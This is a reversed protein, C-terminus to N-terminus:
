HVHKRSRSPAAAAQEAEYGLVAVIGVGLAAALGIRVWSQSKVRQVASQAFEVGRDVAQHAINATFQAIQPEYERVVSDLVGVVSTRLMDFADGQPASVSKGGANMDVNLEDGAGAAEAGNVLSERAPVEDNIDFKNTQNQAM